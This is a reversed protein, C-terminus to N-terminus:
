HFEFWSIKFGVTSIDGYSFYFISYIFLLFRITTKEDSTSRAPLELAGLITDGLGMKRGPDLKQM